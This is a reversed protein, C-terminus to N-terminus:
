FLVRINEYIDAFDVKCKGDWIAVPVTDNFTYTTPLGSKEFDYVEISFKDPIVVWYERVGAAKYKDRKIVMDIYWNSESLVEIALDPAGILRQRTIRDRKCVVFVDPQVMTKNDCNLQVDAPSIFPICAGKNTRIHNELKTYILAAIRQHILTPAAMDYFVGDILEVRVDDPLKYYDDITNGNSKKLTLAGTGDIGPLTGSSAKYEPTSEAVFSPVMEDFMDNLAKLTSMRPTPTSKSFVKQVTSEPVGSKEAIYQYSLGYEKKKIIMEDITMM